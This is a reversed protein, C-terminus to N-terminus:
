IHFLNCHRSFYCWTPVWGSNNLNISTYKDLVFPLVVWWSMLWLQSLGICVRQPCVLMLWHSKWAACHTGISFMKMITTFNCEFSIFITEYIEQVVRAIADHDTQISADLGMLPIDLFNAPNSPLGQGGDEMACVHRCFFSGHFIVIRTKLLWSKNSYICSVSLNLAFLHSISLVLNRCCFAHSLHYLLM